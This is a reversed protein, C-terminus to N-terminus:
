TDGTVHWRTFPHAVLNSNYYRPDDTVEAGLWAPRDFAATAAPLEIEAVILGANAGEFEDIEFCYPACPVYHRTKCIAAGSRLTAMMEVCDALAILYEFELRTSGLTKSKLNIWAQVGDHRVRVSCNDGGLYAQELRASRAVDRRWADGIVLFKREIEIAM